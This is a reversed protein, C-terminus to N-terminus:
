RYTVILEGNINFFHLYEINFSVYRMQQKFTKTYIESYNDINFVELRERFKTFVEDMHEKCEKLGITFKSAEKMLKVCYLKRGQAMLMNISTEYEKRTM